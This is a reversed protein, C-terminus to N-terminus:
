QQIFCEQKANSTKNAGSKRIKSYTSEKIRLIDMQERFNDTQKWKSLRDRPEKTTKYTKYGDKRDMGHM